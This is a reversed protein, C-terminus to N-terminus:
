AFTYAAYSFHQLLSRLLVCSAHSHLVARVTVHYCCTDWLLSSGATGSSSVTCIVIQSWSTPQLCCVMRLLPHCVFVVFVLWDLIAGMAPAAVHWFMFRATRSSLLRCYQPAPAWVAFSKTVHVHESTHSVTAMDFGTCLHVATVQAAFHVWDRAHQVAPQALCMSFVHEDACRQQLHRLCLRVCLRCAAAAADYMSYDTDVVYILSTVHLSLSPVCGTDIVGACVLVTM